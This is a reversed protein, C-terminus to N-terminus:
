REIVDDIQRIEKDVLEQQVVDPADGSRCHYSYWELLNGGPITKENEDM